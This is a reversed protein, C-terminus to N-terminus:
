GHLSQWIRYFWFCFCFLLECAKFLIYYFVQTNRQSIFYINLYYYSEFYNLTHVKFGKLQRIGSHPVDFCVLNRPHFNSSLNLVVTHKIDVISRGGLDIWRLSNPLYDIRGSFHANRNIFIELKVMRLFSEPNLPIVDSKPLEVM